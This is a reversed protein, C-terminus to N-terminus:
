STASNRCLGFALEGVPRYASEVPWTVLANPQVVEQTALVHKGLGRISPLLFFSRRLRGVTASQLNMIAINHVILSHTSAVVAWHHQDDFDVLNCTNEECKGQDVFWRVSYSSM